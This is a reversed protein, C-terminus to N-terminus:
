LKLISGDLTILERSFRYSEPNFASVKGHGGPIDIIYQPIAWGPLKNRLKAYIKRGDELPLYFHMGGKVEDPHHLYYPRCGLSILKKFLDILVTESDNVGKLLVTQSMLQIPLAKLKLFAADVESDFEELHNTHVAVIVSEFKKSAETLLSVFGQDIRSPITTVFRTHFRIYKITKIESFANLYFIIKQNSLVLPDGGTFIIEEIEPNEKLYQLTKEFDANFLDDKENLENKRFCYRCMVPCVTTPAFLIRNEYRHIIQGGKSHTKDGIPDYMGASNTKEDLHPLFQKALASDRGLLKIREAIKKPLLFSYTDIVSSRDAMENEDFGENFFERFAGSSKLAGQYDQMWDTAM